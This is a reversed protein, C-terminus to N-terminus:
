WTVKVSHPSREPWRFSIVPTPKTDTRLVPEWHLVEPGNLMLRKKWWDEWRKIELAAKAAEVFVKAGKVGTQIYGLKGDQKVPFQFRQYRPGPLGCGCPSPDDERVKFKALTDATVQLEFTPKEATYRM